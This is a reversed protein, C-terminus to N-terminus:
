TDQIYELGMVIGLFGALGLIVLAISDTMFNKYIDFGYNLVWFGFMTLGFTGFMTITISKQWLGVIVLGLSLIIALFYFGVLNTTGSPTIDYSFQVTPKINGDNCIVNADYTGTTLTFQPALTYNHYAVQNTMPRNNVLLSNNPYAVTINCVATSACYSGNNLCQIKLDLQKNRPYVDQASAFSTLILVACAILFMNSYKMM